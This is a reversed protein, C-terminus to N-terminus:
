NPHTSSFSHYTDDMSCDMMSNECITNQSSNEYSLKQTYAERETHTHTHTHLSMM